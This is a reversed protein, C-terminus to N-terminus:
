ITVHRVRKKPKSMERIHKELTADDECRLSYIRRNRNVVVMQFLNQRWLKELWYIVTKQTPLRQNGDSKAEAAGTYGACLARIRSHAIWKSQDQGIGAYVAILVKAKAIPWERMSWLIDTRLRCLTGTSPFLTATRKMSSIGGIVGKAGITVELFEGIAMIKETESEPEWDPELEHSDAYREALYPISEASMEDPVHQVLHMIGVEVIAHCVDKSSAWQSQLMSIPFQFYKDQQAM